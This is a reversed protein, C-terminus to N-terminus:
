EIHVEGHLIATVGSTDAVYETEKVDFHCAKLALDYAQNQLQERCEELTAAIRRTQTEHYTNRCLRLNLPYLGLEETTVNYNEFPCNKVYEKGFLVVGTACFVNGTEVTVERTGDFPAFGNVSVSLTVRGLAYVEESTGDNFVRVGEILLDGKSVADGVRVVATGQECLIGTVVGDCSAYINRKAHMDIPPLIVKKAVANVYLVSGKRVVSVYNADLENALRDQVGKLDLRNMNTGISVGVDSLAKAVEDNGFDGDVVIRLCFGSAISMIVVAFICILPLMFHKKAFEVARPLGTYEIRLINYCRERLIAITQRSRRYPVEVSCTRGTRNVGYLPINEKAFQTLTRNINLGEFTIICSNAM